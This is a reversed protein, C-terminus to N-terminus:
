SLRKLLGLIQELTSEPMEMEPKALQREELPNMLFSWVLMVLTPAVVLVDRIFQQNGAQLYNAYAITNSGICGAVLLLHRRLNLPIRVPTSAIWGFLLISVCVSGVVANALFLARYFNSPTSLRNYVFLVGTLFGLLTPIILWRWRDRQFRRYLRSLHLFLELIAEVLSLLILPEILSWIAAARDPNRSFVALVWSEIAVLTGYTTWAPYYRWLGRGYWISVAATQM